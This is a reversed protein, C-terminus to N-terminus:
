LVAEKSVEHLKTTWDSPWYLYTEVPGGEKLIGQYVIDEFLGEEDDYEEFSYIEVKEVEDLEGLMNPVLCLAWFVYLQQEEYEVYKERISFPDTDLLDITEGDSLAVHRGLKFIFTDPYM